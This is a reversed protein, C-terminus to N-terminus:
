LSARLQLPLVLAIPARAGRLPRYTGELEVLLQGARAGAKLRIRSVRIRPEWRMLAGATAAILRVRTAGNDPHDVLEPLLSGYSRRAIRSGVPTMLIDAISQRLHELGTIVRGTHQDMGSM